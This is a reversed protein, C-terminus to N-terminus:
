HRKTRRRKRVALDAILLSLGATMWLFHLTIHSDDGTAPAHNAGTQPAKAAQSSAIPGATNEDPALNSSKIKQAAAQDTKKVASVSNATSNTGSVENGSTDPNTNSSQYQIPEWKAYIRNRNADLSDVLVTDYPGDTCEKDLYWGMFKYGEPVAHLTSIDSLQIRSNNRLAYVTSSVNGDSRIGYKDFNFDYTLQTTKEQEGWQATLTMGGFAMPASANPYYLRGDGSSKWGLFVKGEPAAIGNASAVTVGANEYYKKDDSPCTGSGGNLDYQVCWADISRWEAKLVIDETVGSEFSYPRGNITWGLFVHGEYAPDEPRAVSAGYRVDTITEVPTGKGTDFSVSYTKPVWKAYLDLAYSPMTSNFDFPKTYKSDTYWGAFVFEENGNKMATQNVVYGSPNYQSLDDEYLVNQSPVETGGETHFNLAYSNRKYYIRIPDDQGNYMHQKGDQKKAVYYTSDPNNKYFWDAPYRFWVEADHENILAYNGDSCEMIPTFGPYDSTTALTGGFTGSSFQDEKQLYYTRTDSAGRISTNRVAEKGDPAKGHLTELYLKYYSNDGGYQQQKMSVNETPMNSLNSPIEVFDSGSEHPYYFRHKGDFLEGEPRISFVAKWFNTLDASFKVNKYNLEQTTRDAKPVQISLSYTKCRYYVNLVTSGDAKITPRAPDDRKATTLDTNLEYESDSKGYPHQFILKTHFGAKDGTTGKIVEDAIMKYEWTGDGVGNGPEKQYEIWYRVTYETDTAPKYGAYLTLPETVDRDFDYPIKLEKDAYWQDFVYGQKVPDPVPKKVKKDEGEANRSIFQRAESSGSNTQFDIWYGEKLIPYLKVSETGVQFSGSVDETSGKVTSWGDQCETLPQVQILPSDPAIDVTSNPTVPQSKILNGYQDYYYLYIADEYKAHLKIVSGDQEIDGVTGFGHFDAGTDDVWGIFTKEPQTKPVEPEYLMDGKKVIQSSVLTGDANYFEYTVTSVQSKGDTVPSIRSVVLKIAQETKDEVSVPDTSEGTEAASEPSSESITEQEDSSMEVSSATESAGSQKEEPAVNEANETIQPEEKESTQVAADEAGATGAEEVSSQASTPEDARAMVPVSTVLLLCCLMISVIFRRISRKAKKM